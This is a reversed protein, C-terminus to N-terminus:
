EEFDEGDVPLMFDSPYVPHSYPATIGQTRVIQAAQRYRSYSAGEYAMRQFMSVVASQISKM